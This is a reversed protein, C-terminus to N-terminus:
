KYWLEPFRECRLESIARRRGICSRIGIGEAHQEDLTECPRNMRAACPVWPAFERRSGLQKALAEALRAFTNGFTEPVEDRPKECLRRVSARGLGRTLERARELPLRPFEFIADDYM